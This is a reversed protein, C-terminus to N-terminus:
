DVALQVETAKVLAYTSAGVTLGLDAVADATVAATVVLDTGDIAVKVISMAEGTTISVVKGAFQNRTSLRMNEELDTLEWLPPAASLRARVGPDM